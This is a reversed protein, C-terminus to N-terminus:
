DGCPDSPAGVVRISLYNPIGSSYSCQYPGHQPIVMNTAQKSHPILGTEPSLALVLLYPSKNLITGVLLTADLVALMVPVDVPPM